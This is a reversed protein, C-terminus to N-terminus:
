EMTNVRRTTRDIISKVNQALAESGVLSLQAVSTRGSSESGISGTIEWIKGIIIKWDIRL